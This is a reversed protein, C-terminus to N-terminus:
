GTYKKDFDEHTLIEHVVVLEAGNRKDMHYVLRITPSTPHELKSKLIPRKDPRFRRFPLRRTRDLSTITYDTLKGVGLGYPDKTIEEIINAIDNRMRGDNPALGQATKDIFYNLDEASTNDQGELILEYGPREEREEQKVNLTPYSAQLVIDGKRVHRAQKFKIEIMASPGKNKPKYDTLARNIVLFHPSLGEKIFTTFHDGLDHPFIGSNRIQILVAEPDVDEAPYSLVRVWELTTQVSRNQRQNSSLSNLFDSFIGEEATELNHQIIRPSILSSLGIQTNGGGNGNSSLRRGLVALFPRQEERQKLFEGDSLFQAFDQVHHFRDMFELWQTYLGDALVRSQDSVTKIAQQYNAKHEREMVQIQRLTAQVRSPLQGLLKRFADQTQQPTKVNGFMTNQEITVIEQFKHPPVQDKRVGYALYLVEALEEAAGSNIWSQREQAIEDELQLFTGLEGKVAPVFHNIYSNSEISM